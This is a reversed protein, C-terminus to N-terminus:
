TKLLGFKEQRTRMLKEFTSELQELKGKYDLIKALTKSFGEDM